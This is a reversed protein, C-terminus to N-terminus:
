AYHATMGATSRVGLAYLYDLQAQSAPRPPIAKIEFIEEAEPSIQIRAADASKATVNSHRKRHTKNSRYHVRFCPEPSQYDPLYANSM